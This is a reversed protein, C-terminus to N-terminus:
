VKLRLVTLASDQGRKLINKKKKYGRLDWRSPDNLFPFVSINSHKFATPM